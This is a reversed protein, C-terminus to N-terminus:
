PTAAAVPCGAPAFRAEVTTECSWIGEDDRSWTLTEDRIPGSANTGFQAEISATNDALSIEVTLGDQTEFGEDAGILNSETWGLECPPNTTADQGDM